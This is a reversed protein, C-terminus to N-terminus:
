EVITFTETEVTVNITRIPNVRYTYVSKIIYEGPVLARPIYISYTLKRCGMTLQSPQPPTYYIVSDVFINDVTAQLNTYKCYDVNFQLHQGTNIEKQNVRLPQNFEITKYPYFLWFGMLLMLGIAGLIALWAIKNLINEM